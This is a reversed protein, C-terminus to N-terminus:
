WYSKLFDNYKCTDGASGSLLWHASVHAVRCSFPGSIM